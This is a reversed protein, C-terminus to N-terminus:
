LLRELLAIGEPGKAIASDVLRQFLQNLATDGAKDLLKRLRTKEEPKLNDAAEIKATLLERLDSITDQHLKVTVTGLAASLGGDAELYDVGKPTIKINRIRVFTSGARNPRDAQGDILGHGLLYALQAHYEKSNQEPDDKDRIYPNPSAEKCKRLIELQMTRDLKKM